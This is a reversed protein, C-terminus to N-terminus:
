ISSLYTDIMDIKDEPVEDNDWDGRLYCRIEDDEPQHINFQICSQDKATFEFCEDGGEGDNDLYQFFEWITDPHIIKCIELMQVRNLHSYKNM